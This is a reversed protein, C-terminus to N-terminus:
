APQRDVTREDAPIAPRDAHPRHWQRGVARMQNLWGQEINVHANSGIPLEYTWYTQFTHRIDYVDPGWNLSKDRLTNYDVVGSASDAYRDTRRRATTYNATLSIGNHYRQRFQM